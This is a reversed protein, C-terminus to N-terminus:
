GKQTAICRKQHCCRREPTAPRPKVPSREESAVAGQLTPQWAEARALGFRPVFYVVGLVRKPACQHLARM